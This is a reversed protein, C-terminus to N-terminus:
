SFDTELLRITKMSFKYDALFQQCSIETFELSALVDPFMQHCAEGLMIKDTQHLHM